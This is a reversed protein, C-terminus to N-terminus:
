FRQELAIIGVPQANHCNSMRRQPQFKIWVLSNAVKFEPVLEKQPELLLKSGEIEILYNCPPKEQEFHVISAKQFGAELREKESKQEIKVVEEKSVETTNNKKSCCANLMLFGVLVLVIKNINM